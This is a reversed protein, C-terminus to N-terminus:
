HIFNLPASDTASRSSTPNGPDGASAAGLVPSKKLLLVTLWIVILTVSALAAFNTASGLFDTDALNEIV